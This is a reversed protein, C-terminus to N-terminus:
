RKNIQLVSHQLQFRVLYKRSAEIVMNQDTKRFKRVENNILDPDGLLEYLALNVAKNLINTYSFVISSEYKNKVKEMEKRDPFKEKLESIVKNVEEEAHQIDIGKMLRGHLIILGPDIDSTIYANIESFLKKGRVLKNYLRGSEGGALLDTIFDLTYFDSGTRPGIHWAKYLATAPVDKEITLRRENLQVPEVPLNRM